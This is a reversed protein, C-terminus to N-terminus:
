SLRPRQHPKPHEMTFEVTTKSPTNDTDMLQSPQVDLEAISEMTSSPSTSEIMAIMRGDGEVV